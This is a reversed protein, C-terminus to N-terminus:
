GEIAYKKRFAAVDVTAPPEVAAGVIPGELRTKPFRRRLFAAEEESSFVFGRPLEFLGDWLTFYIPWEDHALPVLLARDAVLPLGFYTTAYLYTVFIFADYDGKKEKLYALLDPSWPGQARMWAEQEAITANGMRPQISECLRNFSELDRPRAVRFRRVRLD